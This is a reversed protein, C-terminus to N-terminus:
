RALDFKKVLTIQQTEVLEDILDNDMCERVGDIDEIFTVVSLVECTHPHIRVEM